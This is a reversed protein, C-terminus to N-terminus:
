NQSEPRSAEVVKEIEDLRSEIEDLKGNRDTLFDWAPPLLVTLFAGILGIIGIGVGFRPLGLIKPSLETALTDITLFSESFTASDKILKLRYEDRTFSYSKASVREHEFFATRFFSEGKQIPFDKGSFNIVATSLPGAYSPDVIGVTLTLIGQKTWTTRLTSIGTINDPLSFDEESMLWVIGRPPLVYVDCYFVGKKTIFEGVRADYTTGRWGLPSSGNPLSVINLTKLKSEVILTM